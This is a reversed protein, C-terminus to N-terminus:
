GRFVPQSGIIHGFAAYTETTLDCTCLLCIFVFLFIHCLCVFVCVCVCVRVCAFLILVCLCLCFFWFFVLVLGFMFLVSLFLNQSQCLPHCLCVFFLCIHFLCVSFLHLNGVYPNYSSFSLYAVLLTFFIVAFLLYIQLLVALCVLNIHFYLSLSLSFPLAVEFM